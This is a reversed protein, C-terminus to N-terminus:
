AENCYYFVEFVNKATYQPKPLVDEGSRLSTSNSPASSCEANSATVFVTYNQACLLNAIGCQLESSMCIATQGDEALVTATYYEAGETIAWTVLVINTICDLHSTVATPM